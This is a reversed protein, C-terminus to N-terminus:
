VFNDIGAMELFQLNVLALCCNLLQQSKTLNVNTLYLGGTASPSARNLLLNRDSISIKIEWFDQLVYLAHRSPGGPSTLASYLYLTHCSRACMGKNPDVLLARPIGLSFRSQDTWVLFFLTQTLKVPTKNLPHVLSLGQSIPSVM